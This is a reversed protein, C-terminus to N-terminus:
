IGKLYEVLDETNVNRLNVNLGPEAPIAALTQCIRPDISSAEAQPGGLVRSSFEM